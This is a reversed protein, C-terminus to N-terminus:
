RTAQSFRFLPRQTHGRYAPSADGDTGSPPLDSHKMRSSQGVTRGEARRHKACPNGAARESSQLARAEEGGASLSGLFVEGGTGSGHRGLLTASGPAVHLSGKKGKEKKRRGSLPMRRVQGKEKTARALEKESRKEETKRKM